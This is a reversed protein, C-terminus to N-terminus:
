CDIFYLAIHYFVKRSASLPSPQPFSQFVIISPKGIIEGEGEGNGMDRRRVKQVSISNNKKDSISNMKEELNSREPDEAENKPGNKKENEKELLLLM